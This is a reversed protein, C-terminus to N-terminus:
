PYVLCRTPDSRDPVICDPNAPEKPSYTEALGVAVKIGLVITVTLVIILLVDRVIAVADRVNAM